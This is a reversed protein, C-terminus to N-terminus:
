GRLICTINLSRARFIRQPFELFKHLESFIYQPCNALSGSSEAKAIEYKGRAGEQKREALNQQKQGRLMGLLKKALNIILLCLIRM